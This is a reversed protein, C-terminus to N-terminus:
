RIDFSFLQTLLFFQMFSSSQSETVWTKFFIQIQPDEELDLKFDTVTM